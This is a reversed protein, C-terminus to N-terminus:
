IVISLIKGKVYIVKKPKQNDLWKKVKASELGVKKAEEESIDSSVMIQDRVKGNVQIVLRFEDAQIMQQDYMPWNEKSISQTNGLIEWLEEAVHPAFTLFHNSLWFGM